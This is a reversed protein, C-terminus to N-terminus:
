STISVASTNPMESDVTFRSKRIAFAQSGLL